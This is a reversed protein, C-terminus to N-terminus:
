VIYNTQKNTQDKIRCTKTFAVLERFHDSKSYLPQVLGFTQNVIFPVAGYLFDSHFVYFSSYAFNKM